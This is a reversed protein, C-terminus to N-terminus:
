DDHHHRDHRHDRRDRREAIGALPREYESRSVAADGDADLRQFARVTLPRTTESWLRAFEELGLKGDGDADHAALAAGRDERAKAIEAQSLRGDRDADVACTRTTSSWRSM